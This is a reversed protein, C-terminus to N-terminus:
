FQTRLALSLNRAEGMTGQSWGGGAWYKTNLLNYVNCILTWDQNQMRFEQTFGANVITRDPVSLTNDDSAYSKGFYRANGHLKLGRVAPVRYQVNGVVQWKPAFAPANGELAANSPSVKEITADLYIASLGLNLHRTAQYAGSLDLGQYTLLGDQTLYRDTGQFEDMTNAREVRFLAATIDLHGAARKIGLEYQKSVTAGLVEGQNAYPAAVRNGPELAEIYSGYLSTQADPKYILALTPSTESTNYGSDPDGAAAKLRYDTFRLGIIAQWHDNFHVTDSAFAYLQRVDAGKSSLSLDAVRDMVFTQQRHINGDFDHSWYWENADKDKSRQLGLGTVIEHKMGGLTLTGRLMAQTFLTNLQNAFNYAYGTYDGAQNQLYAFSKNAYHTKRSWGLQYKLNWDDNIQWQVGTSALWTESNYYSSDVNFNDYRYSVSPLKGGSGVVDYDSFYFAMPEEKLRNNEYALTSFWNVSAGFHKDVALGAVTRDIKSENYARGEEKALNVRVALEDDLLRSADVHASLVGPNRYGLTITTDNTKKPRKLEYSLAGGPEGFGYMFGTLGKLATVSEVIETPFDGGWYLMMPIDDIYSNRVGMGRIQTGWWDTTSSATSTYVSADNAFIQGISKAGRETIQESSVVTMSFPTDLISKSGLAGARAVRNLDGLSSDTGLAKATVKVAPLASDAESTTPAAQRVLVAKGKMEARLGSGELLRHITEEVTFQGSVAPATRDAVLAAPFTMQLDAQRALENLAQALPQAPLNVTIAAGQASNGQAHATTHGATLTFTLAAALALPALTFRAPRM